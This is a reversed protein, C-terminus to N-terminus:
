ARVSCRPSSSAPPSGAAPEGGGDVVRLVPYAMQGAVIRLYEFPEGDTVPFVQFVVPGGQVRGDDVRGAEDGAM